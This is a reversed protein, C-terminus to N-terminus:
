VKGHRLLEYGHSETSWTFGYSVCSGIFSDNRVVLHLNCINMMYSVDHEELMM